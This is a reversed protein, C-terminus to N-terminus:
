PSFITLQHNQARSTTPTSNNDLELKTSSIPGGKIHMATAMPDHHLSIHSGVMGSTDLLFVKSSFCKEVNHTGGNCYVYHRPKRQNNCSARGNNNPYPSRNSSMEKATNNKRSNKNSLSLMAM